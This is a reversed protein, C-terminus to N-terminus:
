TTTKANAKAKARKKKDARAKNWFEELRPDGRLSYVNNKMFDELVTQDPLHKTVYPM